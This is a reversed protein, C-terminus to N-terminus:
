LLLEYSYFQIQKYFRTKSDCFEIFKKWHSDYVSCSSDRQPKFVYPIVNDEFGENSLAERILAERSLSPAPAPEPTVPDQPNITNDVEDESDSIM